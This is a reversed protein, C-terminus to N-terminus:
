KRFECLRVLIAGVILRHHPPVEWLIAEVSGGGATWTSDFFGSEQPVIIAPGLIQCDEFVRDEIRAEDGALEALRIVEKRHIRKTPDAM